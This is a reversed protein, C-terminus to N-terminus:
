KFEYVICIGASGAAGARGSDDSDVGSAGGGGYGTGAAAVTEIPSARGGHGFGMAANGGAGSALFNTATSTGSGDDGAQGVVTVDGTGAVGGAGASGAPTGGSGGKGICHAGFSTDGGNGGNGAPSAVGAAGAAGITVTESSIAQVDVIKEAYGGGGGGGASGSAANKSGGGGGGGGVCVARVYKVGSPKTWTGSGTFVQVSVTDIGGAGLNAPKAKKVANASTDYTLVFDAAADPTADETLSNLVKLMNALTIKDGTGASTDYIALEDDTAPSTEASLATIVKFLDALTIKRNAVASLDYIPLEDDTAPATLATLGTIDLGSSSIGLTSRAAAADADDLLTTIYSSVSLYAADNIVKNELATADNNWSLVTDAEPEPLEIDTFSSSVPLVLSRGIQEALQQDRMAALDIAQEVATSPFAGGLPFSSGQTYPASRIITLTEGSAPAAVATVTGSAAGAGTLSYHTGEVWTTEVGTATVRKVVMVHSNSIFKFSTPFAVTTGDGNYRVRTTTSSLAM